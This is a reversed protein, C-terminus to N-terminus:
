RRPLGMKNKCYSILCLELEIAYLSVYKIMNRGAENDLPWRKQSSIVLDRTQNGARVHPNKGSLSPDGHHGHDPYNTSKLNLAGLGVQLM